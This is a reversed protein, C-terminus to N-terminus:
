KVQIGTFWIRFKGDQSKHEQAIQLGNFHKYNEWTTILSPEAKGASFYSWEQIRLEEDVYM